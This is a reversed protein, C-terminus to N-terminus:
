PLCGFAEASARQAEPACPGLTVQHMCLCLKGSEAFQWRWQRSQPRCGPHCLVVPVWHETGSRRRCPLTTRKRTNRVARLTESVGGPIGPM